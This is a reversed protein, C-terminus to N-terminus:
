RFNLLEGILKLSIKILFERGSWFLVTLSSKSQFVQAKEM